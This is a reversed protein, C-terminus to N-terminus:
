ALCIMGGDGTLAILLGAWNWQLDQISSQGQRRGHDSMACHLIGLLGSMYLIDRVEYIPLVGMNRCGFYFGAIDRIYSAAVLRPKIFCVYWPVNVFTYYGGRLLCSISVPWSACASPADVLEIGQAMGGLGVIDATLM